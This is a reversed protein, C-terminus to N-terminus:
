GISAPPLSTVMLIHTPNHTSADLVVAAVTGALCATEVWVEMGRRLEVLVSAPWLRVRACVLLVHPSVTNGTVLQDHKM